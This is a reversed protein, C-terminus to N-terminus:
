PHNAEMETVYLTGPDMSDVGISAIWVQYGGDIPNAFDLTPDLTGYSDDACYWEGDPANVVIAADGSEAVFYFRLLAMSGADYYVDYDPAATAYGVCGDRLYSVDISGGSLIDVSYPDPTFGSVLEVGGFNSDLRWDLPGAQSPAATPEDSAPQTPPPLTATALATPSATAPGPSGSASAGPEGAAGLFLFAALGVAVIGVVGAAVAPLPISRTLLGRPGAGPQSPVIPEEAEAAAVPAPTTAPAAAEIPPTRELMALAVRVLQAIHSELPPTLADLWHESALYYAMAGTPMISEIRFPIVVVERSVAHEVERIVQRSDNAAGSLIVVMLRSGDIADVIAEAWVQGPIVDRPAFWCRIGAQELRSVIADAVPKDGTSYSVFVDHKPQRVPPQGEEGSGPQKTPGSDPMTM